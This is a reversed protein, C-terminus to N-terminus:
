DLRVLKGTALNEGVKFRYMLNTRSQAPVHYQIIQSKGAYVNGEFVTQIKRGFIDYVELIGKGTVKSELRFRINDNYPNPYSSVSINEPKKTIAEKADAAYKQNLRDALAHFTGCNAHDDGSIKELASFLSGSCNGTQLATKIANYLSLFDHTGTPYDINLGSASSLLASVAHRSFAKCQGGGQAIAGHMTLSTPFGNAGPALGFYTFYNTSTIFPHAGMNTQPLDDTGVGDWLSTHNKWFGPSCGDFHCIDAGVTIALSKVCLHADQVYVTHAGATLGTFTYPSM